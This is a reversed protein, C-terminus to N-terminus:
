EIHRFDIDAAASICNCFSASVWNVRAFSTRIIRAGQIGWSEWPLSLKERDTDYDVDLMEDLWRHHLQELRARSKERAIALM